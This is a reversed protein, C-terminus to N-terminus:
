NMQPLKRSGDDQVLRALPRSQVPFIVTLESVINTVLRIRENRASRLARISLPSRSRSDSTPRRLIRSSRPFHSKVGRLPSVAGRARSIVTPRCGRGTKTEEFPLVSGVVPATASFRREASPLPSASRFSARFGLVSGLLTYMFDRSSRREFIM